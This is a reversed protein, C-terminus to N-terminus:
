RAKFGRLVRDSAVFAVAFLWAVVAIGVTYRMSVMYTTKTALSNMGATRFSNDSTRDLFELLVAELFEYTFVMGSFM